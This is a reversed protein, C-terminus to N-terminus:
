ATRRRRILWGIGAAALVPLFTAPEPVQSITLLEQGAVRQYGGGSLAKVPSWILLATEPTEVNIMGLFANAKDRVSTNNTIFVKDGAGQTLSLAPNTERGIEWVAWQFAASNVANDDALDWAVTYLQQLLRIRDSTMPPTPTDTFPPISTFSALTEVYYLQSSSFLNERADACVTLFDIGDAKLGFLGSQFPGGVTGNVTAGAVDKKGKPFLNSQKTVTYTSGPLIPAAYVAATATLLLVPIFIAKNTM